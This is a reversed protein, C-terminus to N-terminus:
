RNPVGNNLCRYYYDIRSVYWAWKRGPRGNDLLPGPCAKGYWHYHPVVYRLRVNYRKMLLATLKAARDWTRYHNNGRSESECMEIGISNMNGANTGAHWATEDLPIHQVAMHQDVTFHWNRNKFAGNNLARSHQMATATSSHNATSHITIFRPRLKKSERRARANEPMMRVKINVERAMGRLSRARISTSVPKFTVSKPTRLYGSQSKQSCGTLPLLLACTITLLRSYAFM